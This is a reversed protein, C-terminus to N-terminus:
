VCRVPATPHLEAAAIWAALETKASGKRLSYAVRKFRRRGEMEHGKPYIEYSRYILGRKEDDLIAPQGRLDGPGFVLKEEIWECVLPGLTPYLVKDQPVTLIM